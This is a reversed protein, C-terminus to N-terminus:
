YSRFAKIIKDGAVYLLNDSFHLRNPTRLGHNRSAVVDGIMTMTRLDFSLVQETNKFAVYVHRGDVCTLHAPWPTGHVRYSNLVSGSNSVTCIRQLEDTMDGHCIALLDATVRIAHNPNVVDAPLKIKLRLSGEPTYELLLRSSRSTVLVDGVHTTSISWACDHVEWKTWSATEVHHRHLNDDDDIVYLTGVGAACVPLM